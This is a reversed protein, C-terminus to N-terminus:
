RVYSCGSVEENNSCDIEPCNDKSSILNDLTQPSATREEQNDIHQKYLLSLVLNNAIARYRATEDSLKEGDEAVVDRGTLM